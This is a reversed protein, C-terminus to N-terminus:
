RSAPYPDLDPIDFWALPGWDINRLVTTFVVFFVGYAILAWGPLRLPPLTVGAHRLTWRLWLYGLFPVAILAPLHNRAANVPDGHVLHYFMRTGGCTPGNIGTLTHWLCPGTPDAVRDTPNFRNVYWAAVVLPVLASLPGLVSRRAVIARWGASMRETGRVGM